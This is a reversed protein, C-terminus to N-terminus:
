GNREIQDLRMAETAKDQFDGKDILRELEAVRAQATECDRRWVDGTESLYRCSDQHQKIEKAQGDLEALLAAVDRAYDRETAGSYGSQADDCKKRIKALRDADM